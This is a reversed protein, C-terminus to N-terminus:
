DVHAHVFISAKHLHINIIIITVVTLMSCSFYVHKLPWLHKEFLKKIDILSMFFLFVLNGNSRKRKSVCNVKVLRNVNKKVVPCSVEESCAFHVYVINNIIAKTQRETGVYQIKILSFEWYFLKWNYIKDSLLIFIFYHNFRSWNLSCLWSQVCKIQVFSRIISGDDSSILYLYSLSFLQATIEAISVHLILSALLM